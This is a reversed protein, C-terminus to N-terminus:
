ARATKLSEFLQFSLSVRLSISDLTTSPGLFCFIFHFVSSLPSLILLPLDMTNAVTTLLYHGAKPWLLFAIMRVKVFLLCGATERKSMQWLLFTIGWQLQSLTIKTEQTRVTRFEKILGTIDWLALFIIIYETSKSIKSFLNKFFFIVEKSIIM